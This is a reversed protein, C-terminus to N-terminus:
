HRELSKLVHPEHTPTPTTYGLTDTLRIPALRRDAEPSQFELRLPISSPLVPKSAEIGAGQAQSTLLAQYTLYKHGRLSNIRLFRIPRGTEEHEVIAMRGDFLDFLANVEQTGHMRPNLEVLVTCNRARLRPLLDALWHRTTVEKHLLLIDSVLQILVRPSESPITELAHTLLDDIESINRLNR